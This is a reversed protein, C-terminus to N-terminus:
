QKNANFDEWKKIVEEATLCGEVDTCLIGYIELLGEKYGYSGYHCIADWLRLGEANFVIIQHRDITILGYPEEDTRQYPVNHEELYRQLKDLEPTPRNTNQKAFEELERLIRKEEERM